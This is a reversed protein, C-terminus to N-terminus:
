RRAGALWFLMAAVAWLGSFFATLASVDRPWGPGEAGLGGALAIAGIALQVGAAAGLTRAMGGPKLRAVCAGGTLIAIVAAFMLNAANGEDGIIGVALNIWILLFLGLTTLVSAARYVINQARSALLEYAGLVVTLLTGMALFDSATWVVEGTYYMAIAPACLLAAAMSWRTVRWRNIQKTQAITTM